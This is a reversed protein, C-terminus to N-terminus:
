KQSLWGEVLEPHCFNTDYAKNLRYAELDPVRDGQAQRLTTSRAKVFPIM